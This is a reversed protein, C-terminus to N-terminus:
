DDDAAHAVVQRLLQEVIQAVPEVV